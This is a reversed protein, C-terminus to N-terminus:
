RAPDIRLIRDLTLVYLDGTASQGFSVVSGPDVGLGRQTRVQGGQHTLGRLQGDCYDAYVYAGALAPIKTGRYVYGGTVSCGPDHRYEFLPRTHSPTPTCSSFRHTGEFCRWGLNRGRQAGAPLRNIEEWTGQGVDAVWLDGNARDFSFRWPNRVGSIWRQVGKTVPDIRLIKGLDTAPDQGNGTSGHQDGAGGGDGLGLYLRGDPGFAINGGNHNGEPQEHVYINRRGGLDATGDGLLPLEDVRSSGATDTYSAYLRTGSPNFAIGLLGQEGGTSVQAVVKSRTCSTGSLWCISGGRRAVWLSGDSPRVAMAIPRDLAVIPTLRIRATAFPDTPRTTTVPITATSSTTSRRSAAGTTTSSDAEVTTAPSTSTTSSRESTTPAETSSTTPGAATELDNGRRDPDDDGTLIAALLGVMAVLVALGALMRARVTTMSRM